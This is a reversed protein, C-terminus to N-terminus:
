PVGVWQPGNLLTGHNNNGSSDSATSGQGEEFRWYGRLGCDKGGCGTKDQSYDGAAHSAMLAAPVVGAYVRVEDVIGDVGDGIGLDKAPSPLVPNASSLTAQDIAKGDRYFVLHHDPAYTLALHTWEDSTPATQCSTSWVLWMGGSSSDGGFQVTPCPQGNSPNVVEYAWCFGGQGSGCKDLLYSLKSSVNVKMWAEVTLGTADSINLSPSAPVRVLDAGGPFFRLGTGAPPGVGGGLDALPGEARPTDIRLRDISTADSDGRELTPLDVARRELLRDDVPGRDREAGPADFGARVCATVGVVALVMVAATVRPPALRDPCCRSLLLKSPLLKRPM